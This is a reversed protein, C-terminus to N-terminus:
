VPYFAAYSTLNPDNEARTSAVLLLLRAFGKPCLVGLWLLASNFLPRLLSETPSVGLPELPRFFVLIFKASM